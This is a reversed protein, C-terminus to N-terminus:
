WKALHNLSFHVLSVPCSNTFIKIWMFACVQLASTVYASLIGYLFLGLVAAQFVTMSSITKCISKWTLYKPFTESITQHLYFVFKAFFDRTNQQMCDIDTVTLKGATCLLQWVWRAVHSAWEGTKHVVFFEHMPQSADVSITDTESWQTLEARTTYICWYNISNDRSRALM